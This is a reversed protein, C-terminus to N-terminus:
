APRFNKLGQNMMWVAAFSTRNKSTPSSAGPISEEGECISISRNGGALNETGLLM